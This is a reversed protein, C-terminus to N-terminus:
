FELRVRKENNLRYVFRVFVLVVNIVTLFFLIYVNMRKDNSDFNASYFLNILIFVIWWEASLQGTM